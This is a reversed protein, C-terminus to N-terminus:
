VNLFAGFYQDLHNSARTANEKSGRARFMTGIYGDPRIVVIDVEQASEGGLWKETCTMGRTDLHPIDDIYVTWRSENWLAPLDELEVQDIPTQLVIGFTCMGSIPTYREPRIFEDSVGEMPPQDAYSANTTRMARGLTSTGTLAYDSIAALFDGSSRLSRTFFLIRFQGLMPIDLHLDVPSADLFRTVKAPPPLSGVRLDGLISGKQFLNLVNPAYDAGYGSAIRAYRLCNESYLEADGFTLADLKECDYDLEVDAVQRREDEYSEM